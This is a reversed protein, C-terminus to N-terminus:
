LILNWAELKSMFLFDPSPLPLLLFLHHHLLLLLLLDTLPFLLLLHSPTSMSILCVLQHFSKGDLFNLKWFTVSYIILFHNIWVYGLPLMTGCRRAEPVEPSTTRPFLRSTWAILLFYIFLHINNAGTTKCKLWYKQM